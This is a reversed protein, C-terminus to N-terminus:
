TEVVIPLYYLRIARASGRNRYYRYRWPVYPTMRKIYDLPDCFVINSAARHKRFYYVVSIESNGYWGDRHSHEATTDMAFHKNAWSHTPEIYAVRRYNLVNVWFDAVEM